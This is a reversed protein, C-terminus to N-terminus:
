QEKIMKIPIKIVFINESYGTKGIPLSDYLKINGKLGKTMIGKVFFLGLGKNESASEEFDDNNYLNTKIVCGRVGKEFIREKEMPEIPYGINKIYINYYYPSIFEDWIKIQTGIKGYKIANNIVNSLVDHFQQKPIKVFINHEIKKHYIIDKMQNMKNKQAALVQNLSHKTSIFENNSHIEKIEEEIVEDYKTIVFTDGKFLTFLYKRTFATFDKIDEINLFLRYKEYSNDLRIRKLTNELDRTRSNIINLYQASEHLNREDLQKARYKAYTVTNLISGMHLTVRKLMRQSLQNYKRHSKDFIMVAGSFKGEYNKISVFMISVIGKIEFEKKYKM